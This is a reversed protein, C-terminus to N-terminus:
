ADFEVLFDLDSQGARFAGTAASGFAELRQVGYQRCLHEIQGRRQVLERIM